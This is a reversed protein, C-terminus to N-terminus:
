GASVSFDIFSNAVTFDQQQQEQQKPRQSQRSNKRKKQNQKLWKGVTIYKRRQKDWRLENLFSSTAANKIVRVSRGTEPDREYGYFDGSALPANTTTTSGGPTAPAAPRYWSDDTGYRSATPTGQALLKNQWYPGYGVPAAGGTNQAVDSAYDEFPQHARYGTNVIPNLDNGALFSGTQVSEYGRMSSNSLIPSTTVPSNFTYPINLTQGTAFPAGGPNADLLQQPSIAFRKALDVPDDGSKYQYTKTKAM